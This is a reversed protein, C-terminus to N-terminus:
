FRSVLERDMKTVHSTLWYIIIEQIEEAFKLSISIEHIEHEDGGDDHKEHKYQHHKQQLSHQHHVASVIETVVKQLKLFINAHDSFHV